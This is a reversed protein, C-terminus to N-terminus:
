DSFEHLMSFYVVRLWFTLARNNGRKPVKVERNMNEGRQTGGRNVDCVVTGGYLSLWIFSEHANNNSGYRILIVKVTISCHTLEANMISYQNITDTKIM